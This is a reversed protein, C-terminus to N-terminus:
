ARMWGASVFEEISVHRVAAGAVALKEAFAAMSARHLILKHKRFRFKTFYLPHEILYVREAPRRILVEEFLQHPFLALATRSPYQATPTM